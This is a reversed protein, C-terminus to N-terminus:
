GIRQQGVNMPDSSPVMLQVKLSENIHVINPSRKTLPIYVHWFRYYM